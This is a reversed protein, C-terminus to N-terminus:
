INDCLDKICKATRNANINNVAYDPSLEKILSNEKQAVELSYQKPLFAVSRKILITKVDCIGYTFWWEYTNRYRWDPIIAVDTDYDLNRMTLKEFFFYNAKDYMLDTVGMIVKKGIDTKYDDIGFYRKLIDKAPDANHLIQVKLGEAKYLTALEKAITDKGCGSVGTLLIVLM